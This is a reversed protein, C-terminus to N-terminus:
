LRQSLKRFQLPSLGEWKRFIRSFYHMDNYGIVSAVEEISLTTERLLQKAQKHRLTQLYRNPGIGMRAKFLRSLYDTHVNLYSAMEKLTWPHACNKEMEHVLRRISAEYKQFIGTRSQEESSRALITFMQLLMGRCAMMYGAKRDNWEAIVEEMLHIISPPTDIGEPPLDLLPQNQIVPMTCFTRESDCPEEVIIDSDSWVSLDGFFDFHIGFLLVNPKSIVEVTHWLFSPILLIRGNEVIVTKDQLTVRIKGRVVFLLQFDYIRRSWHTGFDREHRQAWHVTPALDQYSTQRYFGAFGQNM